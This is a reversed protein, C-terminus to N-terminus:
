LFKRIFNIKSWFGKQQMFLLIEKHKFIFIFLNLNLIKENREELLRLLHFTFKQHKNHSYNSFFRIRETFKAFGIERGERITKKQRLIDTSMNSHQRYKVLCQTSFAINGINTAVYALWWDHIVLNTFGKMYPILRKHFMITHGSVCNEFLFYRSDSGTYFRRVDTIRRELSIGKDDIFESDHYVLINDGIENVQIEIKNELWIDDQDCLAIFEGTCLSIAKEFNKIYGLNVENQYVKFHDYKDVYSKLIKLTDDKSVDDVLVVELNPYTQKVISALQAELYVAGNYTCLAVSVLPYNNM